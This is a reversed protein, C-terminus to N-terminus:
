MRNYEIYIEYVLIHNFLFMNIKRDLFLILANRSKTVKVSLFRPVSESCAVWLYAGAAYALVFSKTDKSVPASAAIVAAIM